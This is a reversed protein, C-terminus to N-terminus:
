RTRRRVTAAPPQERVVADAADEITMQRDMALLRLRDLAANEDRGELMLALLARAVTPRKRLRETLAQIEAECRVRTAFGHAAILLASYVGASSVPKLLHANAGQALAWEVRGPAESGILAILPMPAHGPPWPFQEDYGNDTDFFIVDMSADSPELEPWVTRTKAGLRDLQRVIHDIVAHPPHLVVARWSNLSLGVSKRMVGRSEIKGEDPAVSRRHAAVPRRTLPLM